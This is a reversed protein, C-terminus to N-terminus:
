DEGWRADDIAMVLDGAGAKRALPRVLDKLDRAQDHDLAPPDVVLLANLRGFAREVLPRGEERPAQVSLAEFAAVAEDLIEQLKQRLEKPAEDWSLRQMFSRLRERHGAIWEAQDARLAQEGRELLAVFRPDGRLSAFYDDGRAEAAAEPSAAIAQELDALAEDHRGLRALECARNFLCLTRPDPGFSVKGRPNYADLAATYALAAEEHRELQTLLVGRARLVGFDRPRDRLWADAVALAEDLRDLEQLLQLREMQLEAPKWDAAVRSRVRRGLRADVAPEAERDLLAEARDFAGLAEESRELDRLTRGLFYWAQISDPAAAIAAEFSPVAAAMDGEDWLAMGRYFHLLAERGTRVALLADAIEVVDANRGVGLLKEIGDVIDEDADGQEAAAQDRLEAALARWEGVEADHRSGLACAAFLDACALWPRQMGRYALARVAYAEEEVEHERLIREVAKLAQEHSGERVAARARALLVEPDSTQDDRAEGRAARARAERLDAVGHALEPDEGVAEAEAAIEPWSLHFCSFLAARRVPASEDRLRARLLAVVAEIAATSRLAHQLVPGLTRVREAPASAAQARALAEELTSLPWAERVAAALQEEGPGELILEATGLSHEERYSLSTGDDGRLVVGTLWGDGRAGEHALKLGHRAGLADLAARGVPEQPVLYTTM